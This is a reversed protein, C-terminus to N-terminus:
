LICKSECNLLLNIFEFKNPLRNIKTIERLEPNYPLIRHGLKREKDKIWRGNLYPRRNFAGMQILLPLKSRDVDVAILEYPRIKLEQLNQIIDSNELDKLGIVEIVQPKGKSLM